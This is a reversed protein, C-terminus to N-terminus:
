FAGGFALGNPGLRLWPALEARDGLENAETPATLIVTVGVAVVVGSGILTWMSADGFTQATDVLDLGRPTCYAQEGSTCEADIESTKGMALGGLAFGAGAGLVGVGGVVFGAVRQTSWFGVPADGVKVRSEGVSSRKRVPSPNAKAIEDLPVLVTKQDAERLSVKTEWLVSEDRVVQVVTEGPNTPLASSFGGKTVKTDGKYVDFGTSDGKVDLTIFSLKPRIAERREKAFSSRDDNKRAAIDMADGWRGYASALRGDKELCDALNLLSGLAADADYSAEFKACAESFKGEKMLEKAQTFLQDATGVDASAPATWLLTAAAFAVLAGRGRTEPSRCLRM